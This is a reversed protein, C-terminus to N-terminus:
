AKPLPSRDRKPARVLTPIRPVQAEGAELPHFGVRDNEKVDTRTVYTVTARM